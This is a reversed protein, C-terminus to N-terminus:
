GLSNSDGCRGRRDILSTMGVMLEKSVAGLTAVAVLWGVSATLEPSHAVQGQQRASQRRRKSAPQTSDESM